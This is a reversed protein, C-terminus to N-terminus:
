LIGEDAFSKYCHDCFIIHDLIQIDLMKGAAVLKKTLALDAQSPTPNGSPHNHAIIIAQAKQQLAEYFVIKPDAVTGSMGGLSIRKESLIDNARNLFLIWFEEHHLDMLHKQLVQYADKSSQIKPRSIPSHSSRRKGLELASIIAIAKASGIGKFKILENFNLKALSNLNNDSEKLISKALDVASLSKTGSGLLIALLEADSLNHKGKLLLKERPRDAEAWEQISLYKAQM